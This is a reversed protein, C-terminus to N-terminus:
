KKDTNNIDRICLYKGNRKEYLNMFKGTELVKGTADKAVDKGTEIALNGEIFVDVTEVSLTMGKPLTAFQQEYAKQIAAKGMLSPSENLLSVADDAYYIVLAAADRANFAAQFATQLAQIEARVQSVDPKAPM